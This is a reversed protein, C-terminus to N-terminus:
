NDGPIRGTTWPAGIKEMETEINRIDTEQLRKLKELLPPLEDMLIDYAEKEAETIDATSGYHTYVLTGLRSALPVPAPPLEESSARAEYGNFAFDIDKLQKNVAKARDLLERSAGPTHHLTQIIQEMRNIMETNARMAGQMKRALEGAKKQFDVMAERDSAPLTTNRLAEARFEVPGALPTVQGNVVKSLTVKYMGPMALFGSQGGALPDYKERVNVPRPSEYKLDWTLRHIGKSVGATLKKVVQNDEDLITFLLHPKEEAAEQRQEEMTLVHIKEGKEFQEKEQEKRLERQTKVENKLYYTFTAGFPPNPGFFETSGQKEHSTEIYMLADRVPFIVAEQGSTEPTFLRLPSYDDLIFFGRGFTALVLDNERRQIAMDHVQIDPLGNDLEIWQKGGDISFFFSLETGAFLLDPNVFDQEICHVSGNEPLNASISTWTNGKDTSKMLYPKFDDRLLNNFSAFVINEDFKSPCVDSVYTFEPVGPFNECRRWSKGGDETVQILGDDTGAYLLGEKIESEALSVITGYLSTSVDKMVADVSWYKDMVKWTNRDMNRTLDGSITTWSNGRDDSRFVREAAAYLRTHQHPSLILPADWNWRYTNEGRGPQPRIDIAEGSRRDYRVSNGYQSESYVINPDTPDVAQWFGDGGCTVYWASGPVGDRSTNRSPGGFSNNDQTGGYVNYFPRDNDVTVRYFQTVPLNSKFIFNEGNDFTEYIGGDGGIYFHRTDNPDIWMAHDDVHRNKLSLRSWTKGGDLTVHTVTEVSYVKNVDKPDCYIENYYQGSSAHSSMKEWSEGRNCSRYFGSKDGEAEIIAYIIDPNVPSLAIGMGGVHGSPLGSTLKRWSEGEDTSKYIASEPGGGVKTFVHRRRQESTAYMVAPDRPDIIVNNVGTHVSIDLVKQWTTGGDTSKYLGREGGPGWVSGEAAVFVIDPNQPNIAIMGIQRSDKLGMNKWSKGGDVSKYVGNGYGLARQHTNEGTGIWVVDPNCPDIVVCGIAYAGYNDFVPTFTTGNNGTKWVHGSAVAVYWESHNEPNFAFDAIRGSLFAPGISRWKLGPFLGYTITSEIAPEGTKKKQGDVPILTIISFVLVLSIMM